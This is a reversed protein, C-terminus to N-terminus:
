KAMRRLYYRQGEYVATRLRGHSVLKDILAWDAGAKALFKRVAEERMPHVAVINLLDEGVNGTVTFADGEYGFLCEVDALHRSFVQWAMTLVDDDPPVAWRELPPRTPISLYAKAPQLREVLCAAEEVQDPSDNVGRILMTETVLVGRYEGAFRFMAEHIVPLELGRHPRNVRRWVDASAADVKLSVWDARALDDRVSEMWLLSSNSIVATKVGLPRLLDITRGLNSDLTPEGDPVFALYDVSEGLEELRRLRGEVERRIEEPEYFPQRDIRLANTGGVQCYICSYSCIKPPINNVGLSRGLRRSPVPGFTIDFKSM